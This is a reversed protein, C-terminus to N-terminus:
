QQNGINISPKIHNFTNCKSSIIWLKKKLIVLLIKAISIKIVTIPYMWLRLFWRFPPCEDVGCNRYIKPFVIIQIIKIKKPIPEMLQLTEISLLQHLNIINWFHYFMWFELTSLWKKPWNNKCCMQAGKNWIHKQGQFIMFIHKSCLNNM